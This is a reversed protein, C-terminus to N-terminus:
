LLEKEKLEEYLPELWRIDHQPDYHHLLLELANRYHYARYEESGIMTDDLNALTSVLNFIKNLLETKDKKSM